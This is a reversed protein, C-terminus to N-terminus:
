PPVPYERGGAEAWVRDPKGQVQVKLFLEAGPPLVPPLPLLYLSLSEETLTRVVERVVPRAALLVQPLPGPELRLALPEGPEQLRDLSGPDLSLTYLGPLLGGVVFNGQGDAVAFRLEPGQLRVRTYPLPPEGEDRRGNRNEDLYVQGQLGVVTEVPLDLPLTRGREVRVEARRRLALSAELGTVELRYSGPYLELRYRGQADSQVELAGVRVRAGPLPPEDLNRVGDRNRDHFVVGEVYGTARGGFAQVVEEPTNFGGKVEM